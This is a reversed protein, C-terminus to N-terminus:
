ASRRRLPSVVPATQGARVIAEIDADSWRVFRGVRTHPLSRATAGRKLFSPSVALLRAAEATTHLRTM